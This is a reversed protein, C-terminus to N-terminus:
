ERQKLTNVADYPIVTSFTGSQENFFYTVAGHIDTRLIIGGTERLREVVTMDPHGYRNDRGVSIISMQPMSKELFSQSTSTNSGHHAVKLVDVSLAKNRNMLEQESEEGIDGTFLWSIDGFTTHIVLSNENTDGKDKEPHIVSLVQSDIHIETGSNAVKHIFESNLRTYEAIIQKDFFPSTILYDVTYDNLIFSVSGIHDIDDHSLMIADLKRIGRSQLYPHIVQDYVTSTPASYDRNMKGGADILFVGKRYPLEVVIADGQGIDLVTVRGDPDFYPIASIVILGAVLLAGYLFAYRHQKKELFIFFSLLLSYYIIYFYDPVSGITWNFSILQDLGNLLDLFNGHVFQFFDSFLPLLFPLFVTCCMILIFPLVFLSFYPIVMVNLLVSLPQFQYFADLQLPLIVLMSILSIRLIVWGNGMNDAIIKRSLLISYTVIFSFQFGLSHVIYPDVWVMVFFVISLVSSVPLSIRWKKLLILLLALISARWVSPASGSIVPYLPLMTIIVWQLQEKTMRLFYLGFFYFCTLLLGVHLGSIALIHSLGWSQFLTVTEETLDNRDGFLLAKVWSITFENVNDELRNLLLTRYIFLQQFLSQGECSTQEISTIVFQGTYGQKKLFNQYDFQGPNTAALNTEYSGYLNCSRGYLFVESQKEEENLFYYVKVPQNENTEFDFSYYNATQIVDSIIKGQLIVPSSSTASHQWDPPVASHISSIIFVAIVSFSFSISWRKTHILYLLLCVLLLFIWQFQEFNIFLAAVYTIVYWHFHRGIIKM